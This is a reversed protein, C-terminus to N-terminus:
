SATDVSCDREHEAHKQFELQAMSLLYGGFHFGGREALRALQSCMEAIYKADDCATKKVTGGLLSTTRPLM